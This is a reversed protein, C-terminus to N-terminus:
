AAATEAEGAPALEGATRASSEASGPLYCLPDSKQASQFKSTVSGSVM